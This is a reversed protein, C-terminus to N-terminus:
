DFVSTGNRIGLRSWQNATPSFDTTDAIRYRSLHRLLSVGTESM